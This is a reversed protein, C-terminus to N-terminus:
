TTPQRQRGVRACRQRYQVLQEITRGQLLTDDRQMRVRLESNRLMQEVANDWDRLARMSDPVIRLSRGSPAQAHGRVVAVVVIGAVGAAAAWWKMRHM